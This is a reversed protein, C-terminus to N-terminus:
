VSKGIFVTIAYASLVIFLGIIARTITDKAKQVEAENGRALMWIFGAYIILVIFAIGVLSLLTKIVAGISNYIHESNQAKTVIEHGTGAGAEKLSTNFKNTALIPNCYILLGFFLFFVTLIIKNVKCKM